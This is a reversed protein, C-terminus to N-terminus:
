VPSGSQVKVKRSLDLSVQGFEIFEDVAFYLLEFELVVINAEKVMASFLGAGIEVTATQRAM